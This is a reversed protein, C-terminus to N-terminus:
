KGPTLPLRKNKAFLVASAIPFSTRLDFDKVYGTLTNASIVNGVLQGGGVGVREVDIGLGATDFGHYLLKNGTIRTGTLQPVATSSSDSITEALIGTGAEQITNGSIVNNISDQVVHRASLLIGYQMAAIKNGSIKLGQTDEANIGLCCSSTAGYNYSGTITNGSILGGVTDLVKMGTLDSDNDTNTVLLNRTISVKYPTPSSSVYIGTGQFDFLTNGTITVTQPNTTTGLVDIGDGVQRGPVSSRMHTIINKSLTVSSDVILVGEINITATSWQILNTYRQAGDITLGSITVDKSNRITVLAGSADAPPAIHPQGLVKDAKGTIKVNTVGIISLPGTYDGSCLTISEGNLISLTSLDTLATAGPCQVGDSPDDITFGAAQAPGAEAVGGGWALMWVFILLGGVSLRRSHRM